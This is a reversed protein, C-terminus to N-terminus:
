QVISHTALAPLEEVLPKSTSKEGSTPEVQGIKIEAAQIGIWIQEETVGFHNYTTGNLGFATSTVGSASQVKKFRQRTVDLVNAKAIWYVVGYDGAGHQNFICKKLGEFGPYGANPSSASFLATAAVSAKVEDFFEASATASLFPVNAAASYKNDILSYYSPTPNTKPAIEVSSNAATCPAPSLNRLDCKGNKVAICYSGPVFALGTSLLGNDSPILTADLKDPIQNLAIGDERSPLQSCASLISVSIIAAPRFNM